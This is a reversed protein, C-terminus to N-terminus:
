ALEGVDLKGKESGIVSQGSLRDLGHAGRGVAADPDGGASAGDVEVRSGVEDIRGPGAQGDGIHFPHPFGPIPVHIDQGALVFDVDEGSSPNDGPVGGGGHGHRQGLIRPAHDDGDVAVEVPDVPFMENGVREDVSLFRLEVPDKVQGLPPVVANPDGADVADAAHFVAGEPLPCLLIAKRVEIGTPDDFFGVARDPDAHCQADGAQAVVLDAVQSAQVTERIGIDGGDHGIFEPVQPHVGEATEVQQLLLVHVVEETAVGAADIALGISRRFAVPLLLGGAARRVAADPEGVDFADDHHIGPINGDVSNQGGDM